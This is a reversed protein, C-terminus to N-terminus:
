SIVNNINNAVCSVPWTQTWTTLYTDFCGHLALRDGNTQDHTSNKDRKRVRGINRKHNHNKSPQVFTSTMIFQGLCRKADLRSPGFSSMKISVLEDSFIFLAKQFSDLFNLTVSSNDSCCISFINVNM